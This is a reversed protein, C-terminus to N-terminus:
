AAGGGPRPPTPPPLPTPPHVPPPDWRALGGLGRSARWQRGGRRWGGSVDAQYGRASAVLLLQNHRKQERFQHRPHRCPHPPAHGEGRQSRARAPETGGGGLAAQPYARARPTPSPACRTRKSRWRAWRSSPPLGPTGLRQQHPQQPYHPHLPPPCPRAQLRRTAACAREGSGARVCRARCGGAQGASEVRVELLLLLLLLTVLPLAVCVGQGISNDGVRASGGM